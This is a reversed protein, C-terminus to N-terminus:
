HEEKREDQQELEEGLSFVIMCSIGAVVFYVGLDFLLPTGLKGVLPLPTKDWMGTMFPLGDPFGFFGSVLATALGLGILAIPPIILTKRANAVGFALAQLVFAGSAVLGGTFGGGPLNHGRLLLFISFVILLGSLIQNTTRLIISNM